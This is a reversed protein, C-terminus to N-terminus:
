DCVRNFNIQNLDQHVEPNDKISQAIFKFLLNLESRKENPIQYYIWVSTRRTTVLQQHRLYALHRSIVSQSAQMSDMIECVCLEDHTLLLVMIRIRIPESLAKFLHALTTTQQMASM